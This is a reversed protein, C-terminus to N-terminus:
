KTKVTKSKSWSSYFTKPKQGVRVTKYTRVRVYYKKNKKLKTIKKSTKSNGKVTVTKASKFNKNTSYQIEYGNTQVSQKKWKVTFAKKAKKLSAVSTGKPNIAYHVKVTEGEYDGPFIPANDDWDRYPFRFEIYQDGVNKGESCSVPSFVDIMEGDQNYVNISPRQVNGNYVFSRASLEYDFRKCTYFSIPDTSMKISKLTASINSSGTGDKKITALGQSNVSLCDPNTSKFSVTSPLLVPYGRGNDGAENNMHVACVYLQLGGPKYAYDLEMESSSESEYVETDNGVYNENLPETMLFIYLKNKTVSVTHTKVDTGTKSFSKKKSNSFIQVWYHIGDIEACGVGISKNSKRLINARHGKSNMWAAMVEDATQAGTQINESSVGKKSIGSKGNPRTHSYLLALEAARQMAYSTLEKNYTLKSLKKKKRQKNVQSFVNKAMSYDETVDYKISVTKAAYVNTGQVLFVSLLLCLSILISIVRKM